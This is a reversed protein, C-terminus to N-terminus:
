IFINNQYLKYIEQTANIYFVVMCFLCQLEFYSLLQVDGRGFTLMVFNQYSQLITIANQWLNTIVMIFNMAKQSWIAVDVTIKIISFAIKTICKKMEPVSCVCM